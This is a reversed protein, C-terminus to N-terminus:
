NNLFKSARKEMTLYETTKKFEEIMHKAIPSSNSLIKWEYDHNNKESITSISVIQENSQKCFEFDLHITSTLEATYKIIPTIKM